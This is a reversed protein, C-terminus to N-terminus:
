SALIWGCLDLLVNGLSLSMWHDRALIAFAADGNLLSLVDSQLNVGTAKQFEDLKAAIEEKSVGSSAVQAALTEPNL